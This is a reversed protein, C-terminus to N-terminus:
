VPRSAAPSAGPAPAQTGCEPCRGPTARLDYGCSRCLGLRGHRRRLLPRLKRGARVLPLAATLLVPLWYPLTIARHERTAVIRTGNEDEVEVREDRHGFGLREALTPTRRLGSFSGYPSDRWFWRWGDTARAALAARDAPDFHRSHWRCFEVSGGSSVAYVAHHEVADAHIAFRERGLNDSRRLSRVWLVSLAMCLLLSSATLLYFLRRRM